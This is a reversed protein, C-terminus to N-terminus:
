PWEAEIQSHEEGHARIAPVTGLGGLRKKRLTVVDMLFAAMAVEDLAVELAQAGM